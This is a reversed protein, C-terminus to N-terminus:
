GLECQFQDLAAGDFWYTVEKGGERECNKIEVVPHDAM